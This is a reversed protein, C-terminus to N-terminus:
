VGSLIDVTSAQVFVRLFAGPNELVAVNKPNFVLATYFFAFFVISIAVFCCM